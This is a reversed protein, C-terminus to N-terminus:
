LMCADISTPSFAAPQRAPVVQQLRQVDVPADLLQLAREPQADQQAVHVDVVGHLRKPLDGANRQEVVAHEDARPAGLNRKNGGERNGCEASRSGSKPSAPRM